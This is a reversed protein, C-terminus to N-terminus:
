LGRVYVGALTKVEARHRRFKEEMAMSIREVTARAGPCSKSAGKWCTKRGRLCPPDTEPWRVRYMGSEDRLGRFPELRKIQSDRVKVNDVDSIDIEDKSRAPPIQEV